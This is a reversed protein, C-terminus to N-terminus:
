LIELLVLRTLKACFCCSLKKEVKSTSKIFLM